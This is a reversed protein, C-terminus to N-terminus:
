RRLHSTKTEERINEGHVSCKCGDCGLPYHKSHYGTRRRERLVEDISKLEKNMLRMRLKSSKERSLKGKRLDVRM